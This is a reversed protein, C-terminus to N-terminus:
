RWKYNDALEIISDYIAQAVEEQYLENSIKLADGPNSLFLTEVIVAPVVTRNLVILNKQEATDYKLGRNNTGLANVVNKLLTTAVAKSTLKGDKDTEHTIFLVETGNPTPNPSASNMHISVFVDGIDNAMTARSINEPYTDGIRTVYTKVKDTKQLRSYTKQLIALTIDKEKLNNGSTGPDQGGHGADLVLIKNYVEKPNKINIYYYNADETITYAYIGNQEFTIATKGGEQSITASVLETTNLAMTGSGYISSYDGPLIIQYKKNLYDDIHEANNIAFLETKSLAIAKRTTEYHVNKLQNPKNTSTDITPINVDTNTDPIVSEDPIVSADPMTNIDTDAEDNSGEGFSVIISDEYEEELAIDYKCQKTLEFVVKTVTVDDDTHQSSIIGSVANSTEVKIHDTLIEKQAYYINIVIENEKGEIQEFKAIEDSAKIIFTQQQQKTEPIVIDIVGIDQKPIDGTGGKIYEKKEVTDVKVDDDDNNNNNNNNDNNDDDSNNEISDDNSEPPIQEQKIEEQISVMRTNEDWDVTCGLAESVARVPIMTRENIVKAPVDMTFVVGNKTASKDDAKLIVVDNERRVYVEQTAENWVVEAGLAEFVARAPVLTRDYLVIPPMDGEPLETGNVSIHISEAEYNHMKQDYLLRMKIVSGYVQMNGLFLVSAVTTCLLRNWKKNM